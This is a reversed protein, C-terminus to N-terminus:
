NTADMEERTILTGRAVGGSFWEDDVQLGLAEIMGEFAEAPCAGPSWTYRLTDDDLAVGFGPLDILVKYDGAGSAAIDAAFKETPM